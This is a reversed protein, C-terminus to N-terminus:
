RLGAAANVIHPETPGALQIGAPLDKTVFTETNQICSLVHLVCNQM